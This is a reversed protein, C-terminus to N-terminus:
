NEGQHIGFTEDLGEAIEDMDALILIAKTPVFTYSSATTIDTITTTADICAITPSIKMNKKFKEYVERIALVCADNRTVAKVAVEWDASSVVFIKEKESETKLIM